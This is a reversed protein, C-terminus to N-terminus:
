FMKKILNSRTAKSLQANLLSKYRMLRATAKYDGESESWAIKKDTIEIETELIRLAKARLEDNQMTKYAKLLLGIVVALAIPVGMMFAGGAGLAGWIWNRISDWTNSFSDNFVREREKLEKTQQRHKQFENFHDVMEELMRYLDVPLRVAKGLLRGGKYKITKGFEKLGEASVSIDEEGTIVEEISLERSITLYPYFSDKNLLHEQIVTTHLDFVKLVGNAKYYMNYDLEIITLQLKSPVLLTTFMSPDSGMEDFDKLGISSRLTEPNVESVFVKNKGDVSLILPQHEITEPIDEANRLSLLLKNVDPALKFIKSIEELANLKDGPFYDFLDIDQYENQLESHLESVIINANIRNYHEENPEEEFLMDVTKCLIHVANEPNQEYPNITYIYDDGIILPMDIGTDCDCAISLTFIPFRQDLKVTPEIIFKRLAGNVKLLNPNNQIIKELNVTVKVLHDSILRDDSNLLFRSTIVNEGHKINHDNSVLRTYMHYAKSIAIHTSLTILM